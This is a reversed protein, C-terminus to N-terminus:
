ESCKYGREYSTGDSANEKGKEWGRERARERERPRREVASSLIFNSRSHYSKGCWIIIIKSVIQNSKRAHLNTLKILQMCRNHERARAQTHTCAAFSRLLLLLWYLIFSEITIVLAHLVYVLSHIINWKHSYRFASRFRVRSLRRLVVGASRRSCCLARSLSFSLLSSLRCWIPSSLRIIFIASRGFSFM